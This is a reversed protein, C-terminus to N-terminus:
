VASLQMDPYTIASSYIEPAVNEKTFHAKHIIKILHIGREQWDSHYGFKYKHIMADYPSYGGGTDRQEPIERYDNRKHQSNRGVDIIELIQKILEKYLTKTTHNHTIFLQSNQYNDIIYDTLKIDLTKERRRSEDICREFRELLSFDIMGQKFQEITSELGDKSILRVIIESGFIMGYSHKSSDPAYSLSSIGSNFIYPFAIIKCRNYLFERLYNISLKGHKNGLAQCILIDSKSLAEFTKEEGLFGGTRPNNILLRISYKELDIHQRLMATLTASQCNGFVVLNLKKHKDGLKKNNNLAKGLDIFVWDPQNPNLEIAKKYGRIAAQRDGLENKIKALRAYAIDINSDLEIVHEFVEIARQKHGIKDYSLALRIHATINKPYIRVIEECKAVTQRYKCTKFLRWSEKLKDRLIVKSSDEFKNKM